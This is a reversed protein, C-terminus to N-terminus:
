EDRDGPRPAAGPLPGAGSGDRRRPVAVGAGRIAPGVASYAIPAAIFSVYGYYYFLPAAGNVNAFYNFFGADNELFAPAISGILLLLGVALYDRTRIMAPSLKEHALCGDGTM